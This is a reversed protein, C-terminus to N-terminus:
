KTKHKKLFFPLVFFGFFNEKIM